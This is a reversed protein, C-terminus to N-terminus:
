RHAFIARAHTEPEPQTSNVSGVLVEDASLLPKRGVTTETDVKMPQSAAGTDVTADFAVL